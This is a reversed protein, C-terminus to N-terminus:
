HAFSPAPPAQRPPILYRRPVVPLPRPARAVLYAVALFVALLQPSVAPLAASAQSAVHCSVCDSLQEGLDHDHFAAGAVQLVLVLACLGLLVIRLLARLQKPRVVHSPHM